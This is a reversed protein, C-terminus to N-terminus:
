SSAADLTAVTPGDLQLRAAGLLEGLQALSTASAIPATVGRALLWALAVQAPTSGSAAAAADLAALIRLGRADLMAKARAGRVSKAADAETRYKGTLFGSALAYYPIVALGERRCVAALESEFGARDYLNYHPQLSEFRALGAERSIRLAEELRSAGYNSAGIARVKGARVLEDLAGLTEELPTAPDDRHPQYLDIYDTQLRQLSRDVARLIYARSLGREGPGMELGVKTAIVIRARMAPGRAALWRGIISESEGGSHGPVWRSYADATDLFNLGSEVCTDLLEFSRREDVTWGFVNGGFALPAVTIGSRGLPRRSEIFM